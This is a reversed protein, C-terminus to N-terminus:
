SKIIKGIENSSKYASAVLLPLTDRHEVATATLRRFDVPPPIRCIFVCGDYLSSKRSASQRRM